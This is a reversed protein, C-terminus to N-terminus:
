KKIKKERKRPIKVVNARDSWLRRHWDSGSFLNHVDLVDNVTVGGGLRARLVDEYSLDTLLGVSSAGVTNILLVALIASRCKRCRVHLLHTQGDEDLLQADMPHYRSECVPCYSVLKLGESLRKSGSKSGSSSTMRNYSVM